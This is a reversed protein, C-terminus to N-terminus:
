LRPRILEPKGKRYVAAARHQKKVRAGFRGLPDDLNPAEIIHKLTATWPWPSTVLDYAVYSVIAIL